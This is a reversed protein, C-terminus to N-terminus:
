DGVEVVMRVLEALSGVQMKEFVRHRRTEVTRLSILMEGAIVKNLMGGVMKQMVDLEEPTLTDLRRRIDRKRERVEQQQTDQTLANRIASLLQEDRCPKELITVAGAAMARVALPVDAFASILIVPLPFDSRQIQELLEVGSMGLMRYDTVVCGAPKSRNEQLFSEASPFAQLKLGASGVLASVSDRVGPDDDIIYVTQEQSM